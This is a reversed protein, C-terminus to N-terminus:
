RVCNFLPILRCGKRVAALGLAVRLTVTMGVSWRVASPTLLTLAGATAMSVSLLRKPGLNLREMLIGALFPTALYGFYYGALVMGKKESPIYEATHSTNREQGFYVAM